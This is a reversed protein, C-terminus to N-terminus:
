CARRQQPVHIGHNGHIGHIHHNMSYGLRVILPLLSYVLRSNEARNLPMNALVNLGM